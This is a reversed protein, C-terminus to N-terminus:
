LEHPRRCADDTDIMGHMRGSLTQQQPDYEVQNVLAREILQSRILERVREFVGDPHSTM